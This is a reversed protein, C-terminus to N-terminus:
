NLYAVQTGCCTLMPLSNLSRLCIGPNTGAVFIITAYRHMDSSGCLWHKKNWHAFADPHLSIKTQINSHCLCRFNSSCFFCSVLYYCKNGECLSYRENDNFYIPPKDSIVVRNQSSLILAQNLYTKDVM